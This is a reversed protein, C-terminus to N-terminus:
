GGGMSPLLCIESGPGVPSALGQMALKGDITFKIIPTLKGGPLMWAELGPYIGDLAHIVEGLSEGSVVAYREGGTFEQLLLPM